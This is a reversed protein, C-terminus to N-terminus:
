QVPQMVPLRHSSLQGAQRHAGASTLGQLGLPKRSGQRGATTGALPEAGGTFITLVSDSGIYPSHDRFCNSCALSCIPNIDLPLLAYQIPTM